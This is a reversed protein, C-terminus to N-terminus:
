TTTATYTSLGETGVSDKHFTFAILRVHLTKSNQIRAQM